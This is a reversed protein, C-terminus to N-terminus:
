IENQLVLELHKQTQFSNTTLEQAWFKMLIPHALWVNYPCNYIYHKKTLRHNPLRVFPDKAIKRQCTKAVARLQHNKLLVTSWRMKVVWDPLM